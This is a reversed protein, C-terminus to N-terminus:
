DGVFNSPRLGKPSGNKPDEFNVCGAVTKQVAAPGTIEEWKIRQCGELALLKISNLSGTSIVSNYREYELHIQLSSGTRYLGRIRARNLVSM